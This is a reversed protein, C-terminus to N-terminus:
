KKCWWWWRWMKIYTVRKLISQLTLTGSCFKWFPHNQIYFSEDLQESGCACSHRKRGLDNRIFALLKSRWLTTGNFNSECMNGKGLLHENNMDKEELGEEKDWVLPALECGGEQGLFPMDVLGVEVIVDDAGGGGDLRQCAPWGPRDLLPLLHGGGQHEEGSSGGPSFVICM